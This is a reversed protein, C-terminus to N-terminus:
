FIPTPYMKPGHDLLLEAEDHNFHRWWIICCLDENPVEYQLDTTKRIKLFLNMQKVSYDM